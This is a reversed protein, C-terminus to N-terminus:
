FPVPFAVDLFTESVRRDIGRSKRTKGDKDRFVKSRRPRPFVIGFGSDIVRGGNKEVEEKIIQLMKRMEVAEEDEKFYTAMPKADKRLEQSINYRNGRIISEEDKSIYKTIYAAAHEADNLKKVDVAIPGAGWLASLWKIPLYKNILLHFHINGNAQLEATWLYRFKHEDIYQQHESLPLEKLKAKIRRMVHMNIANRFNRLRYKAYDHRVHGNEDCQWPQLLSPAFTLTLFVKLEVSSNEVARRIKQRAKSTFCSTVVGDRRSPPVVKSARGSLWYAGTTEGSRYRRVRFVPRQVPEPAPLQSALFRRYGDLSGLSAYFANSYIM